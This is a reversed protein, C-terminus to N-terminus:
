EAGGISPKEEDLKAGALAALPFRHLTYLEPKAPNPAEIHAAYLEQIVDLTKKGNRGAVEFRIVGLNNAFMIQRGHKMRRFQKVHRAAVQRYGELTSADTGAPLPAPRAPEPREADAREDLLVHARWAWDPPRAEATGEPWGTAPIM